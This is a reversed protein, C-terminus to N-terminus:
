QRKRSEQGGEHQRPPGSRHSAANLRRVFSVAVIRTPAGAEVRDKPSKLPESM